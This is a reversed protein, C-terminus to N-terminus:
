VLRPVCMHSIRDDSGSGMALKIGTEFEQRSQQVEKLRQGALSHIMEPDADPNERELDM